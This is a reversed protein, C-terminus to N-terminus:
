PLDVRMLAVSYDSWQSLTFYLADGTGTIAPSWPHIYPAYIGTNMKASQVLTTTSSWPGEPADATRMVVNNFTNTYLMVFKGLHESYAVSLESTRDAVVQIALFSFWKLWGFPTYFEYAWRNTIENENVRALFVSGGRGPTTGYQYVYGDRRLYANQQFNQEGWVFFVSPVAFFMSPRISSQPVTWTEGNDNSVAVASFNTSWSGPQGWASISMFNIYQTTGVAIAATPIITVENQVLNLSAIIQRSFNPRQASVPSGALPNGYQPDPVTIGDSLDTDASRFLTNKRWEQGPIGCDGFTDGFAMLIQRRGGAGGNDWPIGLDAGSITFRHYSDTQPGTLWGVVQAEGAAVAAPAAAARPAAAAPTIGPPPEATAPDAPIPYTSGDPLVAASPRMVGEYPDPPVTGPAAPKRGIPLHAVPLRAAPRRQQPAQQPLMRSQPAPMVGPSCPDAQAPAAFVIPIVPVMTAVLVACALRRYRTM